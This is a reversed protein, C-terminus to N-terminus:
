SFKSILQNETCKIKKGTSLQVYTQPRSEKKALKNVSKIKNIGAQHAQEPTAGCHKVEFDYSTKYLIKEIGSLTQIFEANM